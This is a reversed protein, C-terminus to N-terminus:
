GEQELKTVALMRGAKGGSRRHSYFKDPNCSTCAGFVKIGKLPVGASLLAKQNAKWLDLFWHGPRAPVAFEQWSEKMAERLPGIVKGDVEYCCPGISPGICALIDGPDSGYNGAMEKVANAAVGKVTGAWGAHVAGAARKVPDYLLIPVCDATLVGILVGKIDTILADYGTGHLGPPKLADRDRVVYVDAGHVQRVMNIPGSGLRAAALFLERNKEVRAPDDGGGAGMNLSNFPSPSVGGRRTTFVGRAGPWDSVEYFGVGGSERFVVPM